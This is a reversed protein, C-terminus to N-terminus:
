LIIYFILVIFLFLLTVPLISNFLFSSLQELRYRPTGGRIIVLIVILTFILLIKCIIYCALCGCILLKTYYSLIVGTFKLLIFEYILSLAFFVPSLKLVCFDFVDLVGNICDIIGPM